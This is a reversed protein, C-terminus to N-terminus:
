QENTDDMMPHLQNAKVSVTNPLESSECDENLCYHIIQRGHEGIIDGYEDGCKSCRQTGDCDRCLNLFVWQGTNEFEKDCNLCKFSKSVKTVFCCITCTIIKIDNNINVRLHDEDEKCSLCRM